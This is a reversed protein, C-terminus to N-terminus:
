MLIRAHANGPRGPREAKGQRRDDDGAGGTTRTARRRALLPTGSRDAEVPVDQRDEGVIAEGTVTGVFVLAFGLEMEVGMVTGECLLTDDNRAVRRVAKENLPDGIRIRVFSHRRGLGAMGERWFLDIQQAPPDVLPCLPIRVPRVHWRLTGLQRGDRGPLRAPDAVRDISEDQRSELALSQLRGRLSVAGRQQSPEGVVQGPQRRAELCDVREQGVLRRVRVLLPDVLEQLRWAIAFAHRHRPQVRCPIGVRVAIVDVAQAPHPRPAVPDDGREVAVHGVVLERDLLKRAVEQRVGRAFLLHGRAEVAIVHDVEFAARDGVFVLDLVDDVPHLRRRAREHSQRHAARAAVRVLVVRDRVLLEVLEEGEEIVHRLEPEVAAGAVCLREDLQRGGHLLRAEVVEGGRDRGM